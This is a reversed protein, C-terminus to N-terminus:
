WGPLIIFDIHEGPQVSIRNGLKMEGGGLFDVELRLEYDRWEFTFTETTKGTVTGIRQRTGNWNVYITADRFDQNDVTLRMMPDGGGGNFPVSVPARPACAASALVLATAFAVALLRSSRPM